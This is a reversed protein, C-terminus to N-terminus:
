VLAEFDVETVVSMEMDDFKVWQGDLSVSPPLSASHGGQAVGSHLVVSNLQYNQM